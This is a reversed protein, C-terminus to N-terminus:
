NGPNMKNTVKSASGGGGSGKAKAKLWEPM